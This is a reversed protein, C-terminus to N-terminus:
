DSNAAPFYDSPHMERRPFTVIGLPLSHNGLCAARAMEMHEMSGRRVPGLILEQSATSIMKVSLLMANLTILQGVSRILNAKRHFIRTNCPLVGKHNFILSALESLFVTM